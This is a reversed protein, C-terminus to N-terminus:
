MWNSCCYNDPDSITICGEYGESYRGWTLDYGHLSHCLAEDIEESLNMYLGDKEDAIYKQLDKWQKHSIKGRSEFESLIGLIFSHLSHSEELAGKVTEQIKGEESAHMFWDDYDAVDEGDVYNDGYTCHGNEYYHCYRCCKMWSDDYVKPKSEEKVKIKKLIKSMIIEGKLVIPLPTVREWMKPM